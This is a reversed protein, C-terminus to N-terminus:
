ERRIARMSAPLTMAMTNLVRPAMVPFTIAKMMMAMGFAGLPLTALTLLALRWDVLFLAVIVLCPVALNAIGEPIAHALLIEIQDIDDTFVRKLQGSGYDKIIGLPQAELKRQLAIRLNKLTNYASVHSFVLAQTYLFGYLLECLLILGVRPMFFSAAPLERRTLPLLIQYLIFYPVISAVIGVTALVAALVTYKKYKGMYPAVSSIM